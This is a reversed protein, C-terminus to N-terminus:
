IGTTVRFDHSKPLFQGRSYASTTDNDIRQVYEILNFQATSATLTSYDVGEGSLGTGVTGGADFLNFNAGIDATAPVSTSNTFVAEFIVNPDDVVLVQVDSGAQTVTGALWFPVTLWTGAANVYKFGLAVGRMQDGAAAKALYGTTLLKVVDGSFISTAYGSNLRYTNEGGSYPRNDVYRLPKFGRPANINPM